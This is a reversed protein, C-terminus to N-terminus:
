RNGEAKRYGFSNNYRENVYDACRTAEYHATEGVEVVPEIEVDYLGPWLWFHWGPGLIQAQPGKENNTAIISGSPLDSGYHKVVIGIEHEGVHRISSFLIFVFLIVLAGMAGLVRITSEKSSMAWAFVGFAAILGILILIMAM